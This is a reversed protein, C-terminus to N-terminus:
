EATSEIGNMPGHAADSTNPPSNGVYSSMLRKKTMWMRNRGPRNAAAIRTCM